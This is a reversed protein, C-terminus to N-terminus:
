KGAARRAAESLPCTALRTQVHTPGVWVRIVWESPLLPVPFQLSRKGRGKYNIAEFEVLDTRQLALKSGPAAPYRPSSHSLPMSNSFPVLCPEQVFGWPIPHTRHVQRCTGATALSSNTGCGPSTKERAGGVGAGM